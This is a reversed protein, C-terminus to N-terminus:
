RWQAKAFWGILGWAILIHVAVLGVFLLPAGAFFQEPGAMIPLYFSLSTLNGLLVVALLGKGGGFTWWCMLGYALEVGFAVMPVAYFGTGYKVQEWGPALAIDPAHTFLDLVIHSMVGAGLALGWVPRKLGLAFVAWVGLAIASTIGISHSWPMDALHIDALSHVQPELAVAELGLFNLAVWMVEILQVSVLVPVIPVGPWKKNIMLATATHNFANM